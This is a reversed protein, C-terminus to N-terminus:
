EDDDNWGSSSDDSSACGCDADATGRWVEEGDDLEQVWVTALCKHCQHNVTSM